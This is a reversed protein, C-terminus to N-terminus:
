RERHNRIDTMEILSSRAAHPFWAPRYGVSLGAGDASERGARHPLSPGRTRATRPLAPVTWASTAKGQARMKGARDAVLHCACLTSQTHAGPCGPRTSPAASGPSATSPLLAVRDPRISRSNLCARPGVISFGASADPTEPRAIPSTSRPRRRRVCRPVTTASACPRRNSSAARASSSVAARGPVRGEPETM